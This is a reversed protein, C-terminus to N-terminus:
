LNNNIMEQKCEQCTVDDIKDPSVVFWKNLHSCFKGLTKINSTAIKKTKKKQNIRNKKIM